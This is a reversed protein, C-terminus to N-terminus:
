KPGDVEDSILPRPGGSAPRSDNIMTQAKVPYPEAKTLTSEGHNFIQCLEDVHVATSRALRQVIGALAPWVWLKEVLAMEVVAAADGPSSPSSFVTNNIIV